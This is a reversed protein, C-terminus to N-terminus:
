QRRGRDGYTFMLRERKKERMGLGGRVERERRKERACSLEGWTGVSLYMFTLGNKLQKRVAVQGSYKLLCLGSKVSECRVIVGPM